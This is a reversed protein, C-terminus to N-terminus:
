VVIEGNEIKELIIHKDPREKIVKAPNGGVISFPPVDKVVVSGMGIISFDGITVGGRIMAGYGIHVYNGINIPKIREDKYKGYFRTGYNTIMHVAHGIACRKGIVINAGQARIMGGNIYSYDGLIVQGGYNEVVITYRSVIKANKGLIM